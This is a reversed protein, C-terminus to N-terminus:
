IHIVLFSCFRHSLLTHTERCVLSAVTTVQTFLFSKKFYYCHFEADMVDEEAQLEELPKQLLAKCEAASFCTFYDQQFMANEWYIINWKKKCCGLASKPVRFADPSAFQKLLRILKTPWELMSLLLVEPLHGVIDDECLMPLQCFISCGIAFFWHNGLLWQGM